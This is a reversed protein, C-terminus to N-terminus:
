LLTGHWVLDDGSRATSLTRLRLAAKPSRVGLNGVLPVGDAGILRPNYFITLANVLGARLLSTAVTSGGEVLLEHLGRGGLAELLRLWGSSGRMPVVLVDAGARELRRRRAVAAGRETVILCGGRGRVVLSGVPTELRRDLIVRLPNSGGRLRCTLRPDDQLVTGVGVLVADARSRMEQVLRRSPPSSIWKSDGGKAAIRGDMSAAMKLHVFPRGTEIWHAFGRILAACADACVGVESDIGARRLLRLGRGSVAPNPDRVGAV